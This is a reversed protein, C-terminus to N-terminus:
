SVGDKKDRGLAGHLFETSVDENEDLWQIVFPEFWRFCQSHESHSIVELLPVVVTGNVLKGLLICM